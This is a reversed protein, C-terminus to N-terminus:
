TARLLSAAWRSKDIAGTYLHARGVTVYENAWKDIRPAVFTSLGCKRTQEGHLMDQRGTSVDAVKTDNRITLDGM